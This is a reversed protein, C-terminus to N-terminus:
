TSNSNQSVVFEFKYGTLEIAELAEDIIDRYNEVVHERFKEEDVYRECVTIATARLYVTTDGRSMAPIPKFWTLFSSHNIRESVAALFQELLEPPSEGPLDIEPPTALPATTQPPRSAIWADIEDDALGDDFRAKAVAFPEIKGGISKRYKAWASVTPFGHRSLPEEEGKKEVGVAAPKEEQTHTNNTHKFDHEHYLNGKGMQGSQRQGDPVNGKGMQGSQRQGDPRQNIEDLKADVFSHNRYYFTLGEVKDIYSCYPMEVWEGKVLKKFKDEAAEFEGYSAYRVGISDFANRFEDVSFELEETWSDGKKYRKNHPAPGMFKYIGDPQKNFWYEMQQFLITATVSGAIQRYAKTYLLSGQGIAVSRNKM